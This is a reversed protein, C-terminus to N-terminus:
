LSGSTLVQKNLNGLKYPLSAAVFGFVAQKQPLTEKFKEQSPRLKLDVKGHLSPDLQVM